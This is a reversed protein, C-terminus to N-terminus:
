LAWPTAAGSRRESGRGECVQPDLQQLVCFTDNHVGETHQGLSLM